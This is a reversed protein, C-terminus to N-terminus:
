KANLQKDKYSAKKKKPKKVESRENCVEKIRIQRRRMQKKINSNTAKEQKSLTKSVITSGRKYLTKGGEQEARIM